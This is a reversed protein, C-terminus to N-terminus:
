PGHARAAARHGDGGTLRAGASRDRGGRGRVPRIERWMQRLGEVGTMMGSGVVLLALFLVGGILVALPRWAIM